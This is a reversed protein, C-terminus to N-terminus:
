FSPQVAFFRNAPMTDVQIKPPTKMDLMPDIVAKPPAAAKGWEALPTIKYGAQIKHVAEYDTPGNTQTRGIIWAYPTPSAIATMGAPPEGSWGPPTVLFDHAQTGTTRTGPSAFVDTWMDMLPLLYYRDLVEPVSVVAPGKTLDLWASSYLTDFNPRVVVRFDASPFAPMNNFMNMPGKGPEVGPEFNTSVRRTVDMTILPYFYLYANVALAHAEEPAIRPAEAASPPSSAIAITGLAM